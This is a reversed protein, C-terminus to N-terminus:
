ICVKTIDYGTGTLQCSTVEWWNTFFPPLSPKTNQLRRQRRQQRKAVYRIAILALKNLM